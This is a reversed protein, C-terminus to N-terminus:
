FHLRILYYNAKNNDKIIMILCAKISSVGSGKLSDNFNVIKLNSDDGRLFFRLSNFM